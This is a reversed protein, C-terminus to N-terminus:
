GWGKIVRVAVRVGVGVRFWGSVGVGARVAVRLVSVM